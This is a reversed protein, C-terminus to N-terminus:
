NECVEHRRWHILIILRSQKQSYVMVVTCFCLPQADNPAKSRHVRFQSWKLAWNFQLTDFYSFIGQRWKLTERFQQIAASWLLLLLTVSSNSIRQTLNSSASQNEFMPVALITRVSFRFNRTSTCTKPKISEWLSLLKFRAWYRACFRWCYLSLPINQIWLQADTSVFTM